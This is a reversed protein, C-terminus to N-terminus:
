RTVNQHQIVAVQVQTTTNTFDNIDRDWNHEMITITTIDHLASTDAPHYVHQWGNKDVHRERLVFNEM